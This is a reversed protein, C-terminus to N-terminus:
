HKKERQYNLAKSITTKDCGIVRAAESISPYVKTENSLYNLVSIQHGQISHLTKLHILRKAKDEETWIRSKMKEKAELSHKYGFM